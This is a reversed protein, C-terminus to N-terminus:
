TSLLKQSYTKAGVGEILGAWVKGNRRLISLVAQKSTGSGHQAGQSRQMNRKNRQRGGAFVEPVDQTM